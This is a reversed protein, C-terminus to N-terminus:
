VTWVKHGLLIEKDLDQRLLYDHMSIAANCPFLSFGLDRVFLSVPFLCARFITDVFPTKIIYSLSSITFSIRHNEYNWPIRCSELSLEWHIVDKQTWSGKCHSKVERGMMLHPSHIKWVKFQVQRHSARVLAICYFHSWEVGFALYAKCSFLINYSRRPGIIWQGSVVLYFFRMKDVPPCSCTLHGAVQGGQTGPLHALGEQVKWELQM